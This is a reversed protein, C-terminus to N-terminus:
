VGDSVGAVVRGVITAITFPAVNCSPAGDADQAVIKPSLRAGADRAHRLESITFPFSGSLRSPTLTRTLLM